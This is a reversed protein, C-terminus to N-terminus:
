RMFFSSPQNLLNSTNNSLPSSHRFGNNSVTTNNGNSNNNPFNVCMQGFNGNNGNGITHANTGHVPSGNSPFNGLVSNASGQPKNSNRMLVRHSRFPEGMHRYHFCTRCFYRFCSLDRCFYPGQQLNCDSCISDELYPDVQVKKVFRPTKIEVFAASVAKMYSKHNNFTLRGSGVPYKHRDTDIGTRLKFIIM